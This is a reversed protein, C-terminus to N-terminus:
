WVSSPPLDFAGKSFLLQQEAEDLGSLEIDRVRQYREGPSRGMGSSEPSTIAVKVLRRANGAGLLEGLIGTATMQNQYEIIEHPPTVKSTPRALSKESAIEQCIHTQVDEEAISEAMPSCSESIIEYNEQRCSSHSVHRSSTPNSADTMHRDRSSTEHVNSLPAQLSEGPTPPPISYGDYDQIHIRRSINQELIMDSIPEISVDLHLM